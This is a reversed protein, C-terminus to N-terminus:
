GTDMLCPRTSSQLHNLVDERINTFMCLEKESSISVVIVDGMYTGRSCGPLKLPREQAGAGDACFLCLWLFALAMFPLLSTVPHLFLVQVHFSGFGIGTWAIPKPICRLQLSSKQTKLSGTLGPLSQLSTAIGEVNDSDPTPDDRVKCVVLILSCSGLNASHAARPPQVM